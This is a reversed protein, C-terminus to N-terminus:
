LLEPRKAACSQRQGDEHRWVAHLGDGTQRLYQEHQCRRRLNARPSPRGPGQRLRPATRLSSATEGPLIVDGRKNKTIRFDELAHGAENCAAVIIHAPHYIVNHYAAIYSQYGPMNVPSPHQAPKQAHDASYQPPAGAEQLVVTINRAACPTEFDILYSTPYPDAYTYDANWSVAPSHPPGESIPGDHEIGISLYGIGLEDFQEVVNANYGDAESNARIGLMSLRLPETVVAADVGVAVKWRPRWRSVWSSM